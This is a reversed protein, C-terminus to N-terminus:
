ACSDESCRFSNVNSLFNVEIRQVKARYLLNQSSKLSERNLVFFLFTDSSFTEFPIKAGFSTM